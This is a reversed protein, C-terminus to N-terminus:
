QMGLAKFILYILIEFILTEIFAPLKEKIIIILKYKKYRQMNYHFNEIAIEKMTKNRVPPGQPVHICDDLAINSNPISLEINAYSKIIEKITKNIKEVLKKIIEAMRELAPVITDNVMAGVNESIAAFAELAASINEFIYSFDLDSTFADDM